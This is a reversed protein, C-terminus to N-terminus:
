VESRGKDATASYGILNMRANKSRNRVRFKTTKQGPFFRLGKQFAGFIKGLWSMSRKGINQPTETGDPYEDLEIFGGNRGSEAWVSLLRQRMGDSVSVFMDRTTAWADVAVEAGSADLDTIGDNLLYFKGDSHGGAVTYYRNNVVQIACGLDTGYKYIGYWMTPFHMVIVKTPTTANAGSYVIWQATQTEYDYTGQTQDLYAPNIYDEHDPDFFSDIDPASIKWIRSNDFIWIGDSFVWAMVNKIKDEIFLGSEVVILSEPASIGITGSLRIRGFNSPTTGKIMWVETDAFVVAENYLSAAARLPREGFYIYGSDRGNWVSPMNAASFRVANEEGQPGVQWVRRKYGFTGYSPDLPEAVPVGEIRYILTPDTLTADWEIAYWYMPSTDGGITTPKEATAEPPSWSVTGKQAFSSTGVLTGDVWDPAATAEGSANYYYVQDIQANQENAGESAPHLVLGALRTPSGIYLRYSTTAGSLDAAQQEVDNNVYAMFDTHVTGDYVYCGSMFTKSGDWVNSVEGMPSVVDMGTVTVDADLELSTKLKYAYGPIGQIVTTVEDTRKNWSIDGSQGHTAGDVMTGDIFDDADFDALSNGVVVSDLYSRMGAHTYGYHRISIYEGSSSLTRHCPVDTAIAVGNMWITQTSASADWQIDLTYTVWEDLIPSVGPILEWSEEYRYIQTDSVAFYTAVSGNYNNIQLFFSDSDWFDGMADSPHYVIMTLVTRAGAGGWDDFDTSNAAAYHGSGGTGANLLFVNRGDFNTATVVGSGGGQNLWTDPVTLSTCRNFRNNGSSVPGKGTRLETWGSGTYVYGILDAKNTNPNGIETGISGVPLESTILIEDSATMSSLPMSTGPDGDTMEDYYNIFKDTSQDYFWVGSPKSVTGKWILFDDGTAIVIAEAVNAWQAIECGTTLAYMETWTIANPPLASAQMIREGNVSDYTHALLCDTSGDLTRFQAMSKFRLGTAVASATLATTGKRQKWGFGPQMNQTDSLEDESLLLSSKGKIMRGFTYAFESETKKKM